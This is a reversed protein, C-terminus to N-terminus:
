MKHSYNNEIKNLGGKDVKPFPPALNNPKLLLKAGGKGFTSLPSFFISISKQCKTYQYIISTSTSTKFM